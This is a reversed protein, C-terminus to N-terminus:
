VDKSQTRRLFPTLVSTNVPCIARSTISQNSDRGRFQSDRPKEWGKWVIAPINSRNRWETEKLIRELETNMTMRNDWETTEINFAYNFSRWSPTHPLSTIAGDNKVETSSPLSHDAESGPFSGDFGMLHSAPRAGSGTQVNHLYLDREATLFRVGAKWGMVIGVWSDRSIRYAYVSFM